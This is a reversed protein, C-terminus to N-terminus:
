PDHDGHDAKESVLEADNLMFHARKNLKRM